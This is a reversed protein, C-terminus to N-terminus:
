VLAGDHIGGQVPEGSRYEASLVCLTLDAGTFTKLCSEVLQVKTYGGEAGFPVGLKVLGGQQILSLGRAAATPKDLLHGEVGLSFNQSEFKAGDGVLPPIIQPIDWQLRTGDFM